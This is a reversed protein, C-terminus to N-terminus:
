HTMQFTCILPGAASVTRAYFTEVAAHETAPMLELMAGKSASLRHAFGELTACAVSREHLGWLNGAPVCKGKWSTQTM